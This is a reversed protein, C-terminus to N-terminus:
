HSEDLLRLSKRVEALKAETLEGSKLAFNAVVKRKVYVLVTVEADRSVKYAPPGDADEYAGVTVAKLGHKQAYKSLADLDAVDALQTFWSKFGAAQRTATEADLAALLKGTAGDLSRGFVIVTPKEAQACVYCESKGREPGTAVLFSYPGPRGGVPLGSVCPEDAPLIAFLFLALATM